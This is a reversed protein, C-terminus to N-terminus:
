GEVEGVFWPFEEAERILERFSRTQKTEQFYLSKDIMQNYCSIMKVVWEGYMQYHLKRVERENLAFYFAFRKEGRKVAYIKVPRMCLWDNARLLEFEKQEEETFTVEYLKDLPDDHTIKGKMQAFYIYHAIFPEDYKIADGFLSKITPYPKFQVVNNKYDM